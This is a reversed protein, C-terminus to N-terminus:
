GGSTARRCTLPQQYCVLFMRKPRVCVQPKAAPSCHPLRPTFRPADNSLKGRWRRWPAAACEGRAWTKTYVTDPAELSRTLVEGPGQGRGHFRWKLWGKRSARRTLGEGHWIERKAIAQHRNSVSDPHPVANEELHPEAFCTKDHAGRGGGWILCSTSAYPNM